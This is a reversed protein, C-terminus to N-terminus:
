VEFSLQNPNEKVKTKKKRTAPLPEPTTLKEKAVKVQTREKVGKVTIEDEDYYHVAMGFVEEDTLWACNGISQKKVEQLIYSWCEKLSKNPKDLLPFIDKRSALYNAVVKMAGDELANMEETFKKSVETM